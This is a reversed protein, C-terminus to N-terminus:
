LNMINVMLKHASLQVADACIRWNDKEAVRAYILQVRSTQKDLYAALQYGQVKHDVRVARISISM